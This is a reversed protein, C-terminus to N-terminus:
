KLCLDEMQLYIQQQIDQLQKKSTCVYNKGDSSFDFILHRQEETFLNKNKSYLMKLDNRLQKVELKVQRKAAQIKEKKVPDQKYKAVNRNTKDLLKRYQAPDAMRKKNRAREKQLYAEYATPDNQKLRDRSKKKSESSMKNIAQRRDEDTLYKVGGFGGRTLNYGQCNPDGVYTNYLAILEIEKDNAEQATLGDFLIEHSFSDWGYKLVASAFYPQSQKYNNGKYGWRVTPEQCTIGIYKKNNIKNTHCYVVFTRNTDKTTM